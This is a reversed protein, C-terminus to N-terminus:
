CQQGIVEEDVGETFKQPSRRDGLKHKEHLHSFLNTSIIIIEVGFSSTVILYFCCLMILATTSGAHTDWHVTHIQSFYRPLVEQHCFVNRHSDENLLMQCCNSTLM